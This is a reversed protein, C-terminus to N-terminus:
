ELHALLDAFAEKFARLGDALLKDYVENMEIGAAAVSEFYHAIAEGDIPLRPRHDPDAVFAEITALPATNVSHPAM